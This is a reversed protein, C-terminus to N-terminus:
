RGARPVFLQWRRTLAVAQKLTNRARNRRQYDPYIDSLDPFIEAGIQEFSAGDAYGDLVRLYHLFKDARRRAKQEFRATQSDLLWRRARAIQDDLNEDLFFMLVMHRSAPLMNDGRVTGDDNVQLIAPGVFIERGRGEIDFYPKPSSGAARRYFEAEWVSPRASQSPYGKGTRWDPDTVTTSM